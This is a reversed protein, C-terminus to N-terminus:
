CKRGSSSRGNPAKRFFLSFSATRYIDRDRNHYFGVKECDSIVGSLGWFEFKKSFSM